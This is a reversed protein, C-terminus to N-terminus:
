SRLSLRQPVRRLHSQSRASTRDGSKNFQMDYMSDRQVCFMFNSGKEYWGGKISLYGVSEQASVCDRIGYEEPFSSPNKVLLGGERGSVM